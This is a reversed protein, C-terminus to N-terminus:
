RGLLLKAPSVDTTSQPINRYAFLFRSIKDQLTGLKLKKMGRKFTQVAREALGNTAPHYPPSRKHKVGNRRLFQQFEGSTFTSGNDTVIVEPLGFTAFIRRFCQITTAATISPLSHVEIWKSHADVVVLFMSGLFPGAFDAHLRTWPRTPWRWLQLPSSPPASVEPDETSSVSM